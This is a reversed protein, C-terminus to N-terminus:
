IAEFSFLIFVLIRSFVFDRKIMWILHNNVALSQIVFIFVQFAHSADTKLEKHNSFQVFVPKLRIQAPNAQFYSVMAVASAEDQFELFAQSFFNM